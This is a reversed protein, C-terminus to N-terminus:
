EEGLLIEDKKLLLEDSLIIREVEDFGIRSITDAFRETRIGYHKFFLISKEVAM